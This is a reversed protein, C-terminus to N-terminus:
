APDLVGGVVERMPANRGTEGAPMYFPMGPVPLCSSQQERRARELDEPTVLGRGHAGRGAMAGGSLSRERAPKPKKRAM